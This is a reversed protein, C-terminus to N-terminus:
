RTNYLVEPQWVNHDFTLQTYGTRPDVIVFTSEQEPGEPPSNSEFCVDEPKDPEPKDILVRSTFIIPSLDAVPGITVCFPGREDRMQKLTKIVDHLEVRGEALKGDSEVNAPM